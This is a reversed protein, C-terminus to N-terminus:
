RIDMNARKKRSSDQDSGRENLGKTSKRRGEDDSIDVVSSPKAAEFDREDDSSSDSEDDNSSEADSEGSQKGKEENQEEDEVVSSM